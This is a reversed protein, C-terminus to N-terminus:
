TRLDILRPEGIRAYPSVVPKRRRAVEEIELRLSQLRDELLRRNEENRALVQERIQGLRRRLNVVSSEARPYSRRYLEDLPDIARQLSRIDEIIGQELEVYQRLHDVDGSGIAGHERDLLHLYHEFREKQQQLYRRLRLLIQVREESHSM